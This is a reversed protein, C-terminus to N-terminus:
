SCWRGSGVGGGPNREFFEEPIGTTLSGVARCNVADASWWRLRAWRPCARPGSRDRLGQGTTAPTSRSPRTPLRAPPTAASASSTPTLGLVATVTILRDRNLGRGHGRRARLGRRRVQDRSLLLHFTPATPEALDVVTAGLVGRVLHRATTTDIRTVVGPTVWPASRWPVRQSPLPPTRMARYTLAVLSRSSTTSTRCSWGSSTRSQQTDCRHTTSSWCRASSPRMLNVGRVYDTELAGYRYRWRNTAGDGAVDIQEAEFQTAHDEALTQWFALCAAQGEVREGERAPQIAEM